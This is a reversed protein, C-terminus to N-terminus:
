WMYVDASTENQKFAVFQPLAYHMTNKLYQSFERM